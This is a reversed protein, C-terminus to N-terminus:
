PLNMCILDNPACQAYAVHWLLAILAICLIDILLPVYIRDTDM